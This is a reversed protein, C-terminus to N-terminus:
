YNIRKQIIEKGLSVEELIKAIRKGTKGDGYPNICLNVKNIYENDYLSKYVADYIDDRNYNVNILNSSCERGSQRTGINVVPVKYSPAEMIGSSSNGIMVDTYKLLNLFDEFNINMYSNIFPLDEYEKIINVIKSSGADSNPYILITQEAIKEVAELTEKMQLGAEEAETTVPHQSLIILKKKPNLGYKEFIKEKSVYEINLISDLGPSGVNFVYDPNEGLKIIREKSEETAPFHIHSFKTVGHRIIEDVTGTVEGGHIHATPINMHAGIIAGALDEDRDGLILIIDPRISEIAQTLGILAFGLSKCMGAENLNALHMDVKADINFGDKEIETVTYGCERILHMGTVIVALELSNSNKIETMISKLRGYNARTGTIVCIKRKM